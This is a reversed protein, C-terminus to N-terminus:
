ADVQELWVIEVDRLPLTRTREPYAHEGALTRHILRGRFTVAQEGCDALSATYSLRRRRDKVIAPGTAELTPM